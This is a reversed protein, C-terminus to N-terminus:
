RHKRAPRHTARRRAPKHPHPRRRKKHRAAKGKGKRHVPAHKITPKPTSTTAPPVAAPAPCGQSTLAQVESLYATGLPTASLESDVMFSWPDGDAMPIAGWWYAQVNEVRLASTCLAWQTYQATQAGWDSVGVPADFENIDIPVGAHGNAELWARLALTDQEMTTLNYLYPHYGVADMPGIAALYQEALNLGIAGSDLMGGIVAQGSPDVQHLAARAAEYVQAYDAPNAYHLSTEDAPATPTIDPENGIEYSAVPLYPLQPNEAWFTGGPGYRQAFSTVFAAMASADAAAGQSRPLGMMPYLRLHAAAALEVVPDMNRGSIVQYRAVGAGATSATALDPPAGIFNVGLADPSLPTTAVASGPLLADAAFLQLCLCGLAVCLQGFRSM